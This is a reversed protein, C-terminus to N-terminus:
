ILRDVANAGLIASFVHMPVIAIALGLGANVLAQGTLVSFLVAIIIHIATGVTWLAAAVKLAIKVIKGHFFTKRFCQLLAIRIFILFVLIISPIGLAQAVADAPYMEPLLLTSPISLSVISLIWIVLLVGMEVFSEIRMQLTRVVPGSVPAPPEPIPPNLLGSEPPFASQDHVQAGAAFNNMAQAPQGQYNQIPQANLQFPQVLMSGAYDQAPQGLQLQLPLANVTTPNAESLVNTPRSSNPQSQVVLATATPAQITATPAQAATKPAQIAAQQVPTALQVIIAGQPLSASAAHDPPLPILM